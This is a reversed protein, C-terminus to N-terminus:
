RGAALRLALAESLGAQRIREQAHAIAYPVRRFFVTSRSTDVIAYAARPDGDRPQGVSGPNVLYRAGERLSVVVGDSVDDYGLEGRELYIVLPAHTHGFLCVPRSAYQIARIADISDFVYADEDYPTGHCIEILDDVVLPGARLQALYRAQEPSLTNRTWAAAQKALPNFHTTGSLRAATRDHNGRVAGYPHLSQIRDVVAGPDGGYGVLDGLVLIHDYGAEHASTLVAELADINAHVDGLLLYRM